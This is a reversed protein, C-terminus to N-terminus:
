QSQKGNIPMRNTKLVIIRLILRGIIPACLLYTYRLNTHPRLIGRAGAAATQCVVDNPKFM